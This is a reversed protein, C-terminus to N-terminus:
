YLGQMKAPEKNAPDKNSPDKPPSDKGNESRGGSQFLGQVRGGEVRSVGTTLDVILREGRLINKGQSLVVNGSLTVTNARMDFVGKDGTATQDKQTVVVGGNAELRKLQSSGGPGPQAARVGGGKAGDDEYFVVLSRCRMDTDGQTVHVKGAFTAVNDKSRVDLTDSEIRVPQDHNQSFGQLANPPGQQLVPPRQTPAVPPRTIQANADGAIIAAAAMVPLIGRYCRRRWAIM